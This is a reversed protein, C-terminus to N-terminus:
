REDTAQKLIHPCFNIGDAEYTTDLVAQLYGSQFRRQNLDEM